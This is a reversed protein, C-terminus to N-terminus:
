VAGELFAFSFAINFYIIKKQRFFLKNTFYYIITIFFGLIPFFLNSLSILIISNFKKSM